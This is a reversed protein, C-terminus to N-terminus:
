AHAVLIARAFPSIEGNVLAGEGEAVLMKSRTVGGGRSGSYPNVDEHRRVTNQCLQCQAEVGTVQDTDMSPADAIACKMSTAQCKQDPDLQPFPVFTIIDTKQM